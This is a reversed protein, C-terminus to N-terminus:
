VASVMLNSRRIFFQLTFSFAVQNAITDMERAHDVISLADQIVSLKGYVTDISISVVIFAICSVPM